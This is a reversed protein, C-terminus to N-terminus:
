LNISSLIYDKYQTTTVVVKHTHFYSYYTFIVFLSEYYNSSLLYLM